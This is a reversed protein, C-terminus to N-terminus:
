FIQASFLRMKPPGSIRARGRRTTSMVGDETAKEWGDGGQRTPQVMWGGRCRRAGGGASKWGVEGWPSQKRRAPRLGGRRSAGPVRRQVVGRRVPAVPRGLLGDEEVAAVVLVPEDEHPEGGVGLGGLFLHDVGVDLGESGHESPIYACNSRRTPASV